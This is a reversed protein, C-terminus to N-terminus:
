DKKHYEARLEEFIKIAEAKAEAITQGYSKCSVSVEGKANTKIEVSHPKLNETYQVEM